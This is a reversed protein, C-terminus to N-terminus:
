PARACSYALNNNCGPPGGVPQFGPLLKNVTLHLQQHVFQNILRSTLLLRGVSCFVKLAATSPPRAITLGAQVFGFPNTRATDHAMSTRATDHAMSLESRTKAESLIAITCSPDRGVKLCPTAFDLRRGPGLHSSESMSSATRFGGDGDREDLSSMLGSLAKDDMSCPQLTDSLCAISFAHVVRVGGTM